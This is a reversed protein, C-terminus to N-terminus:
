VQYITSGSPVSTCLYTPAAEKINM